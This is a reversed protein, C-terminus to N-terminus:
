LVRKVAEPNPTFKEERYLSDQLAQAVDGTRAWETAVFQADPTFAIAFDLTALEAALLRRTDIPIPQGMKLKEINGPELVILLEHRGEKSELHLVIM